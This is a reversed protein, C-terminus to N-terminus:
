WTTCTSPTSPRTPRPSIAGRPVSHPRRRPVPFIAASRAPGPRGCPSATPTWIASSRRAMPRFISGAVPSMSAASKRTPRPMEHAFQRRLLLAALMAGDSSYALSWVRREKMKVERAHAADIPSRLAILGDTRDARGLALTKGDPSLALCHFSKADTDTRKRKTDLDWVILSDNSTGVFLKKGDPAFAVSWVQRANVLIKGVEKGAAVDWLRVTAANDGAALLKGDPSFALCIIAGDHRLRARPRPAEEGATPALAVFGLSVTVLLRVMCPLM